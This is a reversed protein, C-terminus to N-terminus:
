ALMLMVQWAAQLREQLCEMSKCFINFVRTKKHRGHQLIKQNGHKNSLMGQENAYQARTRMSPIRAMCTPLFHIWQIATKSNRLFTMQPWFMGRFHAKSSRFRRQRRRDAPVRRDRKRQPCPRSVGGGPQGGSGQACPAWPEQQTAWVRRTGM